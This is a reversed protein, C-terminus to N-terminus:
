HQEYRIAISKKLLDIYKIEQGIQRARDGAPRVILADAQALVTLLSSDQRSFPMLLTTGTSYDWKARMYHARPGNDKLPVALRARAPQVPNKGLGSLARVAPVLFVLGCVLSSVPNGPLGVLPIGGIRGAMLPKGPRMAVSHFTTDLGLNGAVEHVLDYDGVSAGGITVILDAGKALEFAMKLSAASDRAIPLLRADAGAEDLMAQLGFGNSAVISGGALSEGPMVLEDGTPIIAVVPRRYVQLKACNMSAALAITAPNLFAPAIIRSGAKYDGGAPRIYSSRDIGKRIRIKGDLRDTDEQIIVRDSGDPVPAGTFIRVCQGEGLSGNFPRGAPAEGIVSLVASAAVDQNRVAYGDMASSNFPPQSHGAVLDRALVRGAAQQIPVSESDLPELLEFIRALAQEVSIM